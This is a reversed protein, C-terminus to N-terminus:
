SDVGTLVGNYVCIQIFTTVESGRGRIRVCIVSTVLFFLERVVVVAVVVKTRVREFSLCYQRSDIPSKDSTVLTVKRLLSLCQNIITPGTDIFSTDSTVPKVQTFHPFDSTLM